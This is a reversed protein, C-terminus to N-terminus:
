VIQCMKPVWARSPALVCSLSGVQFISAAVGVTSLVEGTLDELREEDIRAAGNDIVLLTPIINDLNQLVLNM